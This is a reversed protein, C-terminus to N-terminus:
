HTHNDPIPKEPFDLSFDFWFPLVSMLPDAGSSRFGQEHKLSMYELVVAVNLHLGGQSLSICVLSYVSASISRYLVKLVPHPDKKLTTVLARTLSGGEINGFALQSDKCASICLVNGGEPRNIRPCYGDCFETHKMPDPISIQLWELALATWPEILARVTKGSEPFAERVADEACVVTDARSATLETVDTTAFIWFQEAIVAILCRKPSPTSLSPSESGLLWSIKFEPIHVLPSLLGVDDVIFNEEISVILEQNKTAYQMWRFWVNCENLRDEEEYDGTESEPEELQECHGSFFVFYAGGPEADRVLAGLERMINERTPKLRDEVSDHDMLVTIGESPFGYTKTLLEKTARVDEHAGAVRLSRPGHAYKIGILVAKRASSVAHLNDQKEVSPRSDPRKSSHSPALPCSPSSFAQVIIPFRM